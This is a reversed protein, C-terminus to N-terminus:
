HHLVFQLVRVVVVIKATLHSVALIARPVYLLVLIRMFINVLARSVIQLM